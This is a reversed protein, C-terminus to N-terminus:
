RAGRRGPFASAAVTTGLRALGAATPGYHQPRRQPCSSARAPRRQTLVAHPQERFAARHSVPMGAAGTATGLGRRTRSMAGMRRSQREYARAGRRSRAKGSGSIRSRRCERVPDLGILSRENVFRAPVATADSAITARASQGSARSGSKTRPNQQRSRSEKLTASNRRLCYRGARGEAGCSTPRHRCSGATGAPAQPVRM